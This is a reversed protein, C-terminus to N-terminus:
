RLGAWLRPQITPARGVDSSTDLNVSWRFMRVHDSRDVKLGVAGAALHADRFTTIARGNLWVTQLDGQMSIAVDHRTRTAVEVPALRGHPIPFSQRGQCRRVRVKIQGPGAFELRTEYRLEGGQSARTLLYVGGKDFAMSYQAIGDRASQSLKLLATDKLELWQRARPLSLPAGRFGEWHILPRPDSEITSRERLTGDYFMWSLPLEVDTSMVVPVAPALMLLAAMGVMAAVPLLGISADSKREQRPEAELPEAGAERYHWAVQQGGYASVAALLIAPRLDAGAREHNELDFPVVIHRRSDPDKQLFAQWERGGYESRLFDASILVFTRRAARLGEQMATIGNGMREPSLVTYGAARLIAGIRAAIAADKHHFHLVFDYPKVAPDHSLSIGPPSMGLSQALAILDFEVRQAAGRYALSCDECYHLGSSSRSTLISGCDACTM